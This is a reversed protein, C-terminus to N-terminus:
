LFRGHWSLHCAQNTSILSNNVNDLAKTLPSDKDGLMKLIADTPDEKEEEKNETRKENIKDIVLYILVGLVLLLLISEINM